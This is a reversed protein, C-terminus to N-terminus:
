SWADADVPDHDAPATGAPAPRRPIPPPLADLLRDARALWAAITRTRRERESPRRELPFGIDLAAEVLSRITMASFSTAYLAAVYTVLAFEVEADIGSEAARVLALRGSRLSAREEADPTMPM